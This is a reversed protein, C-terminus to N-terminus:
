PKKTRKTNDSSAIKILAESALIADENYSTNQYQMFDLKKRTLNDGKTYGSAVTAIAYFRVIHSKDDIAMNLLSILEKNKKLAKEEKFKTMIEKIATIRVEENTNLLRERLNKLYVNELKINEEPENIENKQEIKEEQIFEKIPEQKLEKIPKQPEFYELLNSSYEEEKQPKKIPEEIIEEKKQEIKEQPIEENKTYEKEKNLNNNQGYVSPNAITINISGGSNCKQSSQNQPPQNNYQTNIPMYYNIPYFSNPYVPTQQVLPPTDIIYAVTPNQQTYNVPTTIFPSNIQYMLSM